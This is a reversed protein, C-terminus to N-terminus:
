SPPADRAHELRRLREEYQSVVQLRARVREHESRIEDLVTRDATPPDATLSADDLARQVAALRQELAAVHPALREMENATWASREDVERLQQRIADLDENRRTADAAAVEQARWRIAADLRRVLWSSGPIWRAHLPRNM